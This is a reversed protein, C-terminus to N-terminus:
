RESGAPEAQWQDAVGVAISPILDPDTFARDLMKDCTREWRAVGDMVSELTPPETMSAAVGEVFHQLALPDTMGHAAAISALEHM